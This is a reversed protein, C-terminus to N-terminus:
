IPTAHSFQFGLKPIKPYDMWQRNDLHNGGAKPTKGGWQKFFFAAHHVSCQHRIERVWTADIPRAHSGSEGGVIVWQVGELDVPGLSELLPEFSIFRVEANVQKL